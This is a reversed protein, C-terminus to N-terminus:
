EIADTRPARSGQPAPARLCYESDRQFNPSLHPDTRTQTGWKEAFHAREAACRPSVREGDQGRSASEHHILQAYPTFVVEWGAQRARLCLDVDNCEEAFAAEDLPGAQELCDRRILLCAGTVASLNQRMLLRDQYGGAHENAHAFWHSGAGSRLAVIFGAHQITRDPYLLKAGVIGVRPRSALAVMEGLWGPEIIEMDNNLLLIMPGNAAAIGANCLRSFNFDGDDRVVRTAPWISPASELLAKTEPEQSGNDVIVIEFARYATVAALTRLTRELLDARDRTPIVISVLPEPDPPIFAARLKRGAAMVEVPVGLRQALATAALHATAMDPFGPGTGVSACAIRPLHRIATAPLGDVYRLLLEYLAAPGFAPRLGLARVREGRLVTLAGMYPTAELLHRNFAPKFVGDRPSGDPYLCEEDTYLLQCDPHPAISARILAVADRTPLFGPALPVVLDGDVAQLAAALAQAADGGSNSIVRAHAPLPAPLDAVNWGAPLVVIWLFAQDTQAALAQATAAFPEAVDGAVTVFTVPPAAEPAPVDRFDGVHGTRFELYEKLGMLSAAPSTWLAQKLRRRLARVTKRARKLRTFPNASREGHALARIFLPWRELTYHGLRTDDSAGRVALAVAARPLAMGAIGDPGATTSALVEGEADLAEIVADAPPDVCLAVPVDPAPIEATAPPPAFRLRVGPEDASTIPELWVPPILSVTM